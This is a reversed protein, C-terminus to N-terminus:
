VYESFKGYVYGFKLKSPLHLDLILCYSTSFNKNIITEYIQVGLWFINTKLFRNRQISSNIMYGHIGIKKNLFMINSVFCCNYAFM